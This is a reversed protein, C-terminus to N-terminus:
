IKDLDMKIRDGLAPIMGVRKRVGLNPGVVPIV